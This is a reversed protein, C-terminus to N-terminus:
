GIWVECFELHNEGDYQRQSFPVSPAPSGGGFRDATQEKWSDYVEWSPSDFLANVSPDNPCCLCAQDHMSSEKSNSLFSVQSEFPSLACRTGFRPIKLIGLLKLYFPKHCRRTSLNKQTQAFCSQKASWAPRKELFWNSQGANRTTVLLYPADDMISGAIKM